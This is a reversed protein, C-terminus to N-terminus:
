YAGRAPDTRSTSRSSKSKRLRLERAQAHIPRVAIVGCVLLFVCGKRYEKAYTM